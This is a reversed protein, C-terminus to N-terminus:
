DSYYPAPTAAFAFKCFGPEFIASSAAASGIVMVPRSRAREGAQNQRARIKGSMNRAPLAANEQKPSPANQPPPFKKTQRTKLWPAIHLHQKLQPFTEVQMYDVRLM